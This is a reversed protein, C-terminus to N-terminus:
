NESFLYYILVGFNIQLVGFALGSYLDLDNTKDLYKTDLTELYKDYEKDAEIKFYAATAGLIAATGLLVKFWPSKVFGEERKEGLFELTINNNFLLNDSNLFISKYGDRMFKLSDYKTPIFLPTKGLLKNGSIISVDSPLSEVFVKEDFSYKFTVGGERNIINIKDTIIESDWKRESEKILLDYEGEELCTVISGEGVFDDNIFILSESSNTKIEVYVSDQGFLNNVLLTIVILILKIKNM